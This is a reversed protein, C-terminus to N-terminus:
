VSQREWRCSVKERAAYIGDVWGPRQQVLILIDPGLFERILVALRKKHNQLSSRSLGLRPVLMTLEQGDVLARLITTTVNDLNAILGEWDLRRGAESAPDDGRSALVDNLTLTEDGSDEGSVVEDVSQVRSRGSLQAGPHLPDSKHFGTSRRGSKLNQVAYYAINGATVQKGAAEASHLMKAAIATGDQVLEAQDEAGVCRVAGPISTRLRPVIEHILLWGAQPSM